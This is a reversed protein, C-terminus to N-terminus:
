EVQRLRPDIRDRLWDRLLTLAQVNSLVAIGTILCDRWADDIYM